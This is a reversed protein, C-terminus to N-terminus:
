RPKGILDGVYLAAGEALKMSQLAQAIANCLAIYPEHLPCKASVAPMPDGTYGVWVPVGFLYGHHTAGRAVAEAETVQLTDALIM